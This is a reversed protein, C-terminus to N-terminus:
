ESKQNQTAPTTQSNEPIQNQPAPTVKSWWLGGVIALVVLSARAWVPINMSSGLVDRVKFLGKAIPQPVLQAWWKGGNRKKEFDTIQGVIALIQWIALTPVIMKWVAPPVHASFRHYNYLGSVGVVVWFSAWTAFQNKPAQQAQQTQQTQQTQTRVKNELKREPEMEMSM